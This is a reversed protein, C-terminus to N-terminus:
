HGSARSCISPRLSQEHNSRIIQNIHMWATIGGHLAVGLLNYPAFLVARLQASRGSYHLLTYPLYTSPRRWRRSRRDARPRGGGGGRGHARPDGGGGGGRYLQLCRSPRRAGGRGHARPTAAQALVHTWYMLVSVRVTYNVIQPEIVQRTCVMRAFSRFIYKGYLCIETRSASKTRCANGPNPSRPRIIRVCCAFQLGTGARGGARM